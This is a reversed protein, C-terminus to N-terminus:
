NSIVDELHSSTGSSRSTWSIGDSSTLITGTQGVVVFASKGYIVGWLTNSIGSGTTTWSTNDTSTLMTGNAGVAVFTSSGYTIGFLSQSTGSTRSCWSIGNDSSTLITGDPGVAVFSVTSDCTTTDDTTGTASYEEKDDSCSFVTLSFLSILIIYFVKNM